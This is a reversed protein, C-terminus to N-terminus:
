ERKEEIGMDQWGINTQIVHHQLNDPTTILPPIVADSLSRLEALREDAALASNTGDRMRLEDEVIFDATIAYITAPRPMYSLYIGKIKPSLAASGTMLDMRLQLDKASVAIDDLDFLLESQPSVTASGAGSGSLETWTGTRDPDHYFTAKITAGLSESVVRVRRYAKDIDALVADHHAFYLV